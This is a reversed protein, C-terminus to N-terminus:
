KLFLIVLVNRTGSFHNRTDHLVGLGCPGAACSHHPVRAGWRSFLRARAVRPLGCRLQQSSCSGGMSFGLVLGHRRPARAGWWITEHAATM